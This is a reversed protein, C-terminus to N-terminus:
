SEGATSGVCPIKRNKRVSGSASKSWSEVWRKTCGNPIFNEKQVSHQLMSLAGQHRVTARHKCNEVHALVSSVSRSGVVAKLEELGVVVLGHLDAPADGAGGGVGLKARLWAAAWKVHRQKTKELAQATAARCSTHSYKLLSRPWTTTLGCLSLKKRKKLIKKFSTCLKM